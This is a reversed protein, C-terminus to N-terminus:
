SSVVEDFFPDRNTSEENTITKSGAYVVTRWNYKRHEQAYSVPVDQRAVGNEGPKGDRFIPLEVTQLSEKKHAKTAHWMGHNRLADVVPEEVIGQDLNPPAPCSRRGLFLPYAPERLAKQIEELQARSESGIAALFAADSLFYRTVLKAPATADKQWPQATQYDRLLSGPQDVRVAFDLSALDDVPEQRQRGLAAALLGIVGSKSPTSGTARTTYRSEDGWSQLPGKLLLLLSYSM